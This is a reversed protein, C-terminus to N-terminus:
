VIIIIMCTNTTATMKEPDSDNFAFDGISGSKEKGYWTETCGDALKALEMRMTSDKVWDVFQRDSVIQLKRKM